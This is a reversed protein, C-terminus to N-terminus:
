ENSKSLLFRRILGQGSFSKPEMPRNPGHPGAPGELEGHNSNQTDSSRKGLRGGRDRGGRGRGRESM